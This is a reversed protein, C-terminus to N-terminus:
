LLVTTFSKLPQLIFKSHLKILAVFIKWYLKINSEWLLHCKFHSKFLFLPWFSFTLNLLAGVSFLPFQAWLRLKAVSLTHGIMQTPIYGKLFQFYMSELRLLFLILVEECWVTNKRVAMGWVSIWHSRNFFYTMYM